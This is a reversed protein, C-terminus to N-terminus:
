RLTQNSLSAVLLLFIGAPKTDSTYRRSGGGWDAHTPKKQEPEPAHKRILQVPSAGYAINVPM